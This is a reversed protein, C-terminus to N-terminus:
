FVEQTAAVKLSPRALVQVACQRENPENVITRLAPSADHSVPAVDAL